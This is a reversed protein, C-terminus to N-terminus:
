HHHAAGDKLLDAKIVFSNETVYEDDLALGDVVEVYDGDNIGLSVVTATFTNGRKVFAVRQEHVTQLASTKIALPVVRKAVEVSAKIHMGPRWHGNENNIVARARAIHGGTMQPAVYLIQGEASEHQHMDRVVVKQGKQIKEINEPFASMDVWVESLDTIQLLSQEDVRDGINVARETVEGDAPSKLTYRQLTDINRLTLLSQNKKVRDGIQVHVKEVMSTFTAHIHFNKDQSAAIVGFLQDNVRLTHSGVKATEIHSMAIMADSIHTTIKEEHGDHDDHDDHLSHDDAHPKEDAHHDHDDSAFSLIASLSLMMFLPLFFAKMASRRM